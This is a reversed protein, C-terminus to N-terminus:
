GDRLDAEQRYLDERTINIVSKYPSVGNYNMSILMLYCLFASTLAAYAALIAPKMRANSHKEEFYEKAVVCLDPILAIAPPLYFLLAFRSIISHKIGIAEFFVTFLLCNIYCVNLPNKDMRRKKFLLCLVLPILFMVTYRIPLGITMHASKAPDYASYMYFAGSLFTLIRDSFILTLILIASVAAIYAARPKFRLILFFPLLILASWHFVSAVVIVASYKLLNKEGIYKIAFAAIVAAIFQRVFNLSNFFIGLSLVSIVSVLPISSYKYILIFLGAFIVVSTVFFLPLYTDSYNALIWMPVSFGKEMREYSTEGLTKFRYGHFISAYMNYDYGTSFRLASAAAFAAGCLICYAPKGARPFRKGGLTIGLLLSGAFLCLYVAM